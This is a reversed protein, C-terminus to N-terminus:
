GSVRGESYRCREHTGSGDLPYAAQDDLEELAPIRLRELEKPEFKVLGGAYIRGGDTTIHQRLHSLIQWLQSPTLPVRPYLGHAINLHRARAENAVFTPASRAMYTCLIPAPHRLEVAWWARRHTAVYGQDTGQAKAWRLFQEVAAREAKTLESLDLPLSLVRRLGVTSRLAGGASILERARTITPHLYRLPVGRMAANEIWTANCGTVQGRHVSFLEGLEIGNVPATKCSNFLTSWRSTNGVTSWEVANGKQLCGLDTLSEIANVRLTAPRDGVRFCTIAGTTMVGDFLHAKPNILHVAAGGLGDALMRRVTLGYNVDLWEAATIFTGFDGPRALERTQLFFHIHLGALKSAKIGYRSAGRAFWEKWRGEIDNTVFM